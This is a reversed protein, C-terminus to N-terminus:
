MILWDSLQYNSLSTFRMSYCDRWCLRQLLLHDGGKGQQETFFVRISFFIVKITNWWYLSDFISLCNHFVQTTVLQNLCNTRIFTTSLYTFWISCYPVYHQHAISTCIYWKRSGSGWKWNIDFFFSWVPGTEIFRFFRDYIISSTLVHYKEELLYPLLFKSLIYVWKKHLVVVSSKLQLCKEEIM